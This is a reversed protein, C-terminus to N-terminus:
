PLEEKTTTSARGEAATRSSHQEPRSSRARLKRLSGVLGAPALLIVLIMLSGYALPGLEAATTSDLGRSIGFDSALETTFTLLVAGIIAGTLSGLGGLVIATLLTLSLALEFATPAALRIQMAMLSGALGAVAASVTFASVRARGLDIGALEASVEDDRVAAWRRGVRGRMLNALLFFVGILLVWALISSFQTTTPETGTLFFLANLFWLPPDHNIVALGQEGGLTGSYQRAIGPVAIALTLTAGALYPGHLRAAAFGVVVGVVLAMLTAALLVAALPLGGEPESMMLATTYAGIAMFAGHGLSIQGNIGTLVTLGGAAMAIYALETAQRNRFDDLALLVVVVVVLALVAVLSHRLLVSTRLRSRTSTLVSM